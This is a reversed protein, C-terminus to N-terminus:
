IPLPLSTLEEVASGVLPSPRERKEELRIGLHAEAM